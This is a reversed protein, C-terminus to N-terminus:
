VRKTSLIWDVEIKKQSYSLKEFGIRAEPQNELAQQVDDPHIDAPRGPLPLWQGYSVKDQPLPM